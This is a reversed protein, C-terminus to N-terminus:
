ERERERQSQRIQALLPLASLAALGLLPLLLEPRFILGLDPQAGAEFVEGLGAGVATYVLGGPIIGLFTTAAFVPLRVNLFAPLLNAVFFPVAPILRMTLLASWPRARIAAALRAARGDGSDIRASLRAGFGARVALFLLCAGLTAGVLNFLVGPFVGFLFGGTLTAVTGGPLSLTVIVVYALVFGLAAALYHADRFERLATQNTRLAEFDLHDGFLVLVAVAGLGIVVLPLFRRASAQPRDPGDPNPTM